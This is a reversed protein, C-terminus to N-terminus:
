RINKQLKDSTRRDNLIREKIEESASEKLDESRSKGESKRNGKMHDIYKGIPSNIFVHDWGQADNGINKEKFYPKYQNRLWDFIYSDHWEKLNFIGDELYLKKWHEMFQVNIGKNLNYIVFGCESIGNKRGLYTLYTDENLLSYIFDVPIKNYTETDADLWIVYDAESKLCHTFITFSKYAFRVAGRHLENPNQQDARKSHRDVFEKLGKCEGFLDHFFPDRIWSFGSYKSEWYVHLDIGEPWYKYFSKVMKRGTERFIRVNMTTVVEIKPPLKKIGFM